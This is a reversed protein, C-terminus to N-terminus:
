ALCGFDANFLNMKLDMRCSVNIPWAIEGEQKGEWRKSWEWEDRERQWRWKGLGGAGEVLGAGMYSEWLEIVEEARWAQICEIERPWVRERDQASENVVKPGLEGAEVWRTMIERVAKGKKVSGPQLKTKYKCKGLASWPAVVPVAAVIEDGPMPTGAFADLNALERREQGAVEEDQEFNEPLAEGAALKGPRIWEAQAAREHQARRREKDAALKAEGAAKDLRLVM